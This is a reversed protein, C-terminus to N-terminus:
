NQAQLEIKFSEKANNLWTDYQEEYRQQMAWMDNQLETEYNSKLKNEFELM